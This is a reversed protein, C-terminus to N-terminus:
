AGHVKSFDDEFTKLCELKESLIRLLRMGNAWKDKM